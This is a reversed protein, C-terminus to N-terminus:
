KDKITFGGDILLDTGTAYSADDSALFLIAQAIEEPQSIRGTVTQNKIKEFTEPPWGKSM